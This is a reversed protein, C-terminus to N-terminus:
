ATGNLLKRLTPELELDEFTFGAEVLRKPIVRQSALVMEEALQGAVARLAFAPIRLITPRRLVRGLTKTYEANTAAGAALNLAGHVHENEVAFVYAASADALSVWSWWQKGDGLIGAVGFRFAPLMEALAGGKADLVIATRMHAVRVGAMAATEAAAEWERCVEALFGLGAECEEVLEENGRNGYYGSASSCILAHPRGGQKYAGAAAQAITRTGEVRSRRIEEKAQPTWLTAIPKGALHVIVDFDAITGADLPSSPKWVVDGQRAEAPDRVMRSVEHQGAQLLSSVSRGILGTAGSILVKM